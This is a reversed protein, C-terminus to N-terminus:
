MGTKSNNQNSVYLSSTMVDIKNRNLDRDRVMNQYDTDSMHMADLIVDRTPKDDTRDM